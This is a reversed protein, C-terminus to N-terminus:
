WPCFRLFLYEKFTVDSIEGSVLMERARSEQTRGKWNLLVLVFLIILWDLTTSGFEFLERVNFPAVSPM